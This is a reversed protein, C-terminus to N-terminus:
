CEGFAGGDPKLTFGADFHRLLTNRREVCSVCEYWQDKYLILDGKTSPSEAPRFPFQGFARIHSSARKGFEDATSSKSEEQVDLCVPDIEAYGSAIYGDVVINQSYRKVRYSKKFFAVM